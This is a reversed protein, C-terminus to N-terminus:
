KIKKPEFCVECMTKVLLRRLQSKDKNDSHYYIDSFKHEHVGFKELIKTAIGECDITWKYYHKRLEKEIIKVLQSKIKM